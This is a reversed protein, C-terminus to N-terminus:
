LDYDGGQRMDTSRSGERGRKAEAVRPAWGRAPLVPPVRVRVEVWPRIYDYHLGREITAKVAVEAEAVVREGEITLAVTHACQRQGIYRRAAPTPWANEKLSEWGGDPLMLEIHADIGPRLVPM